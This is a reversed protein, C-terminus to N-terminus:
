PMPQSIFQRCNRYASSACKDLILEHWSRADQANLKFLLHDRKSGGVMLANLKIHMIALSAGQMITSIIKTLMILVLFESSFVGLIKSSIGTM